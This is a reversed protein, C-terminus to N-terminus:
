GPFEAVPELFTFEPPAMTGGAKMTEKVSPDGLFGEFAERSTWDFLVVVQDGSGSVSYLQARISGHKRRLAAGRTSFVSVFSALDQIKVKGLIHIM